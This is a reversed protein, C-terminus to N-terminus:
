VVYHVSSPVYATMPQSGFITPTYSALALLAELGGPREVIGDTQYCFLVRSKPFGDRPFRFSIVPGSAVLSESRDDQTSDVVCQDVHDVLFVLRLRLVLTLSHRQRSVRLPQTGSSQSPASQHVGDHNSLCSPM